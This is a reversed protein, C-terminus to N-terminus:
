AERDVPRLERRLERYLEEWWRRAAGLDMGIAQLVGQGPEALEGPCGPHLGTLGAETYTLPHLRCVLPRVDGPLACGAPNLFLCDGSATQRLVRRTGDMRLTYLLWNPDGEDGLCEPDEPPRHEFFDDRGSHLQIRSVDARTLLIDTQQCCTKGTSACRSCLNM